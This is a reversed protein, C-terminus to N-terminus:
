QTDCNLNYETVDSCIVPRGNNDLYGVYNKDTSDVLWEPVLDVIAPDQLKEEVQEFQTQTWYGQELQFRHLQKLMATRPMMKRNNGVIESQPSQLPFFGTMRPSVFFHLFATNHYDFPYEFPRDMSNFIEPSMEITESPLSEPENLMASIMMLSPNGFYFFEFMDNCGSEDLGRAKLWECLNDQYRQLGEFWLPAMPTGPDQSVEPNYPAERWDMNFWVSSYAKGSESGPDYHFRLEDNKDLRKGAENMFEAISSALVKRSSGATDLFIVQGYTGGKPPDLDVAYIYSDTSAFPWWAPSYGVPHMPDEARVDVSNFTDPEEKAMESFDVIVSYLDQAHHLPLFLMDGFMPAFTQDFSDDDFPDIQGNAIKYLQYLDDPLPRGLRTEVEALQADTAGPLLQPKLDVGLDSLFALWVTLATEFATM